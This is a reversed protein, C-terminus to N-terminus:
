QVNKPKHKRAKKKYKKKLFWALLLAASSIIFLYKWVNLSDGKLSMERVPYFDPKILHAINRNPASAQFWEEECKFKGSVVGELQITTKSDSILRPVPIFIFKDITNGTPLSKVLTNAEEESLSTTSISWKAVWAIDQLRVKLDSIDNTAKIQVGILKAEAVSGDKYKLSTSALDECIPRVFADYTNIKKGLINEPLGELYQYISYVLVVVGSVALIQSAVKTLRPWATKTIKM